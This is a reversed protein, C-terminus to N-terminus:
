GTTFTKLDKHDLIELLAFDAQDLIFDTKPETFDQNELMKELAHVATFFTKELQPDNKEPNHSLILLVKELRPYLIDFAINPDM